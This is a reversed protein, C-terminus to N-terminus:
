REAAPKLFRSPRGPKRLPGCAQRTHLHVRGSSLSISTRSSNRAEQTAHPRSQQPVLLQWGVAAARHQSPQRGPYLLGTTYEEIRTDDQAAPPHTRAPHDAQRRWCHIRAQAPKAPGTGPQPSRHLERIRALPNLFSNLFSNSSSSAPATTRTPDRAGVGLSRLRPCSAHPMTWHHRILNQHGRPLTDPTVLRRRRREGAFGVRNPNPDKAARQLDQCRPLAPLLM